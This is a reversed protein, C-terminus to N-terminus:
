SCRICYSSSYISSYWLNLIMNIAMEYLPLPHCLWNKGTLSVPSSSAAIMHGPWGQAELLALLLSAHGECSVMGDINRRFSDVIPTRLITQLVNRALARFMSQTTRTLLVLIVGYKIGVISGVSFSPFILAVCWVRGTCKEACM